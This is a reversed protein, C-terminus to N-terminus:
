MFFILKQITFSRTGSKSFRSLSQSPDSGVIVNLGNNFTITIKIKLPLVFIPNAHRTGTRKLQHIPSYDDLAM